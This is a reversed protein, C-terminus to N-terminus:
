PMLLSVIEAQRALMEAQNALMSDLKQQHARIIEQIIKQNEQIIRQCDMITEQSIQDNQQDRILEGETMSTSRGFVTSLRAPHKKVKSAMVWKPRCVIRIARTAPNPVNTIHVIQHCNSQWM